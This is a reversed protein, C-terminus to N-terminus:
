AEEAARPVVNALRTIHRSREDAEVEVIDFAEMEQATLPREATFTGYLHQSVPLDPRMDALSRPVEVYAWVLGSPLTSFGAPRLTTRYTKTM